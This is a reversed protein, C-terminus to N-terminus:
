SGEVVGKFGTGYSQPVVPTPWEFADLASVAALGHGPKFHSYRQTTVISRHGLLAQVEELPRGAQVLWSAYTHRLDHIRPARNTLGAAEVAPRWVKFRWNNDDLPKGGATIFVLWNLQRRTALHAKLADAVIVPLPVTRRARGKPYEKPGYRTHVRIINAQKRPLDLAGIQLGALEGWRMGTFVLTLLITRHPEKMVKLLRQVETQTLYVERHSAVKPLRTERCPNVPLHGERVASALINSLLHHCAAVTAAALGAEELERVWAQVSMPTVKALPVDRWRPLIRHDLRSRNAERTTKEAVRSAWWVKEWAGVTISEPQVADPDGGRDLLDELELAWARAAAKTNFTRSWRRPRRAVEARWRGNRQSISPM